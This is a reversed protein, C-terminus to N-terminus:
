SAAEVAHRALFADLLSDQAETGAGTLEISDDGLTVKVSRAARGGLWSRVTEVVGTVAAPGMTVLLSGVAIAEAGAKSGAPTQGSLARTVDDADTDLLAERLLGAVLDAEDPDAGQEAVDLRLVVSGDM